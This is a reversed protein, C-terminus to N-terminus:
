LQSYLLRLRPVATAEALRDHIAHRIWRVFKVSRQTARQVRELLESIPKGEIGCKEVSEEVRKARRKDEAENKIGHEQELRAEYILM